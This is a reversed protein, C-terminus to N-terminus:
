NIFVETYARFFEKNKVQQLDFSEQMQLGSKEQISWILDKFGIHNRFICTSSFRPNIELLRPGKSTKILQINISGRLRLKKAILYCYEYIEKDEVVKAYGTLGGSLTRKLIVCSIIGKSYSSYVGCTYESDKPLLLQQSIHKTYRKSFFHYEEENNLIYFDKSGSGFRAKFVCPYEIPLQSAPITWPTDVDLQNLLQACQLKDFLKEYHDTEPIIFKKRLKPTNKTENHIRLIEAENVPIIFDIAHTDVINMIKSFYSDSDAKPVNFCESLSTKIFNDTIETGFIKSVQEFGNLIKIISQSIDGGSATILINM